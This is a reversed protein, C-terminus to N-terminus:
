IAPKSQTKLCEVAVSYQLRMRTLLSAAAVTLAGSFLGVLIRRWGTVFEPGVSWLGATVTILSLYMLAFWILAFLKAGRFGYRRVMETPSTDLTKM